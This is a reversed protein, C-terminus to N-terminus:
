DIAITVMVGNDSELVTISVTQDGRSYELSGMNGLTVSSTSEFGLDSMGQSYFDM